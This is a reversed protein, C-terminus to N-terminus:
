SKASFVHKNESKRFGTGTDMVFIAMKRLTPLKPTRLFRTNAGRIPRICKGGDKQSTM